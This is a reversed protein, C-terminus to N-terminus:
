PSEARPVDVRPLLRPPSTCEGTMFANEITIADLDEDLDIMAVIHMILKWTDVYYGIIRRAQARARHKDKKSM